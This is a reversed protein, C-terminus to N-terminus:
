LTHRQLKRRSAALEPSGSSSPRRLGVEQIFLAEAGPRTLKLGAGASAADASMGRPLICRQIASKSYLGGNANVQVNFSRALATGCIMGTSLPISGAVGSALIANGGAFIGAFDSLNQNYAAKVEITRHLFSSFM